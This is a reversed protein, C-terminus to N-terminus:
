RWGWSLLWSIVAGLPRPAPVLRKIPQLSLGPMPAPRRSTLIFGRPDALHRYHILPPQPPQSALPIERHHRRIRPPRGPASWTLAPFERPHRPKFCSRCAPRCKGQLRSVAAVHVHGKPTRRGEGGKCYRTVKLNELNETAALHERRGSTQLPNSLLDLLARSAKALQGFALLRSTESLEQSLFVTTLAGAMMGRCGAAAESAPHLWM